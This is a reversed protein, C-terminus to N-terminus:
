SGKRVKNFRFDRIKLVLNSIVSYPIYGSYVNVIQGGFSQKFEQISPVDTLGGVDYIDYGQNKFYLINKWWLYRNAYNIAQRNHGNNQNHQATAVYLSMAIKGDVIYLRYCLTKEQETIIKTLTLGGQERLLQMTTYHFFNCTYINKSRAFQNYYKQFELLEADSPKEQVIVKLREKEARRLKAQDRKSLQGLLMEKNETLDIWVTKIEKLFRRQKLAYTYGVLQAKSPPTEYDAFYIQQIEM